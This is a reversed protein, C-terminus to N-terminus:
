KFTKVFMLLNYSRHTYQFFFLCITRRCFDLCSYKIDEQQAMRGYSRYYRRQSFIHPRGVGRPYNPWKAQEPRCWILLHSVSWTQASDKLSLTHIWWCVPEGGKGHYCCTKFLPQVILSNLRNNYFEIAISLDNALIILTILLLRSYVTRLLFCICLDECM